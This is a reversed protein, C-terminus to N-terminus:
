KKAPPTTSPTTSGSASASGTGTSGTGTTGTTGTSPTTPKPDDIKAQAEEQKTVQDIMNVPKMAKRQEALWAAGATARKATLAKDTADAKVEDLTKVVKPTSATVLLVNFKKDKEIVDSMQGAATKTLAGSQFVVKGFAPDITAETLSGLENVTGKFGAAVKTFDGGQGAFAKRFSNASDAKDFTAQSVTASAPTTYSAVNDKYYKAVEADTVKVNQTNAKQVAQLLTAHDGLYPKGSKAAYNVAVAQDILNSLAQPRFFQLVLASGQAGNQQLFQSVQQNFYIQRNLDALKITQDGVTAVAPNFYRYSNSGEPVVVKANKVLGLVWAEVAQNQKVKLADAKVKDKVQDYAQVGGPAVSEVKVIYFKGGDSVVNTIGGAQLAFAADAVATPLAIRSVPQPTKEGPKAGLAGQQDAGVKSYQAALAGFDAGPAKAKALVDDATKQDNLVIERASIKPDSKYQDKNLDYFFAAEADSVTTGKSLEDVRKQIQINHKIEDRFQAETYGLSSLMSQFQEDSTISNQQKLQTIQSTIEGGSAPMRSSDQQVAQLLVAQDIYLNKLDQGAVGTLNLGFVQNRRKLQDMYLTSVPMGNVTFATPGTSASPAGSGGLNPTFQVLMGALLALSIVGLVVRAAIQRPTLPEADLNVKRAKVPTEKM